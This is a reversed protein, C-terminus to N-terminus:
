GKTTDETELIFSCNCNPCEVRSGPIVIDKRKAVGNGDIVLEWRDELDEGQALLKGNFCFDPYSRSMTETIMNVVGVMDHTKEAGNWKVGSFDDLFELDVYYLGLTGEWDGHDRCDEGFFKKVESLESVSLEYCFKLEGKFDTSYGM